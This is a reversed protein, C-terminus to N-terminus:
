VMSIVRWSAACHTEQGGKKTKYIVSSASDEKIQALVNPLRYGKGTIENSVVSPTTPDQPRPDPDPWALRTIQYRM